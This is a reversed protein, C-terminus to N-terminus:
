SPEVRRALPVTLDFRLGLKEGEGVRFIQKRVEEGSKKELVELEEFAPTEIPEYGYKRFVLRVKDLVDELLLAQEPM